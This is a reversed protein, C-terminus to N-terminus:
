FHSDGGGNARLWSLTNPSVEGFHQLEAGARAMAAEDLTGFTGVYLNQNKSWIYVPFRGGAGVRVGAVGSGGVIPAHRNHANHSYTSLRLNIRRNDLRDGSIHDVLDGKVAGMVLRHMLPSGGSAVAYGQGHRHWTYGGLMEYVSVDVLAAAGDSLLIRTWPVLRARPVLEVLGVTM